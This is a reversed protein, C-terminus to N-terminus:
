ISGVIEELEEISGVIFLLHDGNYTMAVYGDDRAKPNAPAYVHYVKRIDVQFNKENPKEPNPAPKIIIEICGPRNAENIEEFTCKIRTGTETSGDKYERKFEEKAVESRSWSLNAVRELFKKSSEGTTKIVGQGLDVIADWVGDWFGPSSDKKKKAKEKNATNLKEKQAGNPKGESPEPKSISGGCSAEACPAQGGIGGVPIIGVGGTGGPPIRPGEVVVTEQSDEGAFVPSAMLCLVLLINKKMKNRMPNRFNVAATLNFYVFCRFGSLRKIRAGEFQNLLQILFWVKEYGSVGYKAGKLRNM